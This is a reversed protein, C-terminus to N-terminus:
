AAASRKAKKALRAAFVHRAWGEPYKKGTRRGYEILAELSGQRGQEQRLRRKALMEATIEELEGEREDVQRPEVPFLAGCNACAKARASSAAWCVPCVRVSLKPEAKKKAQDYTLAWVRPEDPLGFRTCNGAHDLITAETKGPAVRL